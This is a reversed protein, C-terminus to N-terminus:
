IAQIVTWLFWMVIGFGALSILVAFLMPPGMVLVTLLNWVTSDELKRDKKTPETREASRGDAGHARAPPRTSRPPTTRGAYGPTGARGYGGSTPPLM